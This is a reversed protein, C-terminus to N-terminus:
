SLLVSQLQHREVAELQGVYTVLEFSLREMSDICANLITSATSQWHRRQQSTLEGLRAEVVLVLYWVRGLSGAMMRPLVQDPLNNLQRESLQLFREHALPRFPTAVLARVVALYESIRQEWDFGIFRARALQGDYRPLSRVLAIPEPGTLPRLHQSFAEAPAPVTGAIRQ